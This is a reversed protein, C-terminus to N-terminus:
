SSNYAREVLWVYNMTGRGGPLIGIPHLHNNRILGLALPSMALYLAMSTALPKEHFSPKSKCSLNLGTTLETIAHITWDRASVSIHHM